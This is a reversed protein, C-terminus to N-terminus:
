FTHACVLELLELRETGRAHLRRTTNSCLEGELSSSFRAACHCMGPARCYRQRLRRFCLLFVFFCVFVPDGTTASKGLRDEPSFELDQPSFALDTPQPNRKPQLREESGEWPIRRQM